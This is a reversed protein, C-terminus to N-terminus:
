QEGLLFRVSTEDEDQDNTEHAEVEELRKEAVSSSLM